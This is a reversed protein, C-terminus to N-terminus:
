QKRGTVDHSIACLGDPKGDSGLLPFKDTKSVIVTVGASRAEEFHSPETQHLVLDDDLAIDDAVEPAFLEADSRGVVQRESRRM